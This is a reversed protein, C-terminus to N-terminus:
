SAEPGVRVWAVVAAWLEVRHSAAEGAPRADASSSCVFARRTTTSRPRCRSSARSRAAAAAARETPVQLPARRPLPPSPCSGGRPRLEGCSSLHRLTTPRRRARRRGPQRRSGRPRAPLRTASRTCPGPRASAASYRAPSGARPRRHGSARRRAPPPPPLRGARRPQLPEVAAASRKTRVAWRSPARPPASSSLEDISRSVKTRFTTWSASTSTTAVVQGASERGANARDWLDDGEGVASAQQRLLLRRPDPPGSPLRGDRTLAPGRHGLAESVKRCWTPSDCIVGRRRPAPLDEAASDGAPM